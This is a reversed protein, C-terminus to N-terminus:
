ENWPSDDYVETTKTEDCHACHWEYTTYDALIHNNHEVYRVDVINGRIWDHTELEEPSVDGCRICKRVQTCKPKDLREWDKLYEWDGWGAHLKRDEQAPCRRCKRVQRCNNHEIYSWDEWESHEVRFQCTGCLGCVRRQHCDGQTLYEWQGNHLNLTQEQEMCRTCRRTRSCSGSYGSWKSWANWQHHGASECIFSGFLQAIPIKEDWCSYVFLFIGFIIADVIIILSAFPHDLLLYSKDILLRIAVGLLTVLYFMLFGRVLARNIMLLRMNGRTSEYVADNIKPLIYGLVWITFIFILIFSLMPNAICIEITQLYVVGILIACGCCFILVSFLVRNM